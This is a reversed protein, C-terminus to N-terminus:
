SLQRNNSVGHREYSTLTILHKKCLSEANFLSEMDFSCLLFFIIGYKIVLHQTKHTLNAWEFSPSRSSMDIVYIIIMMLSIDVKGNNDYKEMTTHM